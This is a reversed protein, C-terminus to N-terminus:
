RRYERETGGHERRVREDGVAEEDVLRRLRREFEAEDIEGEVYRRKLDGIRDEATPEVRESLGLSRLEPHVREVRGVLRSLRDSRPMSARSVVTLTLAALLALAVLGVLLFGVVYPAAADLLAFALPTGASAADGIASLAALLGLAGVVALLVLSLVLGALLAKIRTDYLRAM